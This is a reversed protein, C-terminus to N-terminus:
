MTKEINDKNFMPIVDSTKTTNFKDIVFKGLDNELTQQMEEYAKDDFQFEKPQHETTYSLLNLIHFHANCFDSVIFNFYEVKDEAKTPVFNKVIIKGNKKNM